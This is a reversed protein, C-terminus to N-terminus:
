GQTVLQEGQVVLAPGRVHDDVHLRHRVQGAGADARQQREVALHALALAPQDKAVQRAVDLVDEHERAQDAGPAGGGRRELFVVVHGAGDDAKILGTRSPGPDSREEHRAPPLRTAKRETRRAEAHPEARHPATCILYPTVSYLRVPWTLRLRK